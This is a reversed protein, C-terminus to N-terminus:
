RVRITRGSEGPFDRFLAETLLQVAARRDALPTGARAETQARGEWLVSQDSRRQIRVELMTGVIERSGGGIPIGVGLGAGVGSRGWGGTGGGLGISVSSRQALDERSGQDVAIMAVQESRTDGRAITWGNRALEAEVIAAYQSFELSNAGAPSGTFPEISISGRAIPQGLHFRTVEAGAAIGAGQQTACGALGVAVLVALGGRLLHSRNVFM